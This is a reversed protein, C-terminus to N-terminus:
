LALKMQDREAKIRKNAIDCYEPNIESGIWNRGLRQAAQLTTGSGVYSDYIMGDKSSLVIILESLLEVPKQVPHDRDKSLTPAYELIDSHVKGDNNVKAGKNSVWLILEHRHRFIKGLGIRTKDWILLKTFDWMNYVVPYFVPYSEDNCFVLVHGNDKIIRKYEKAVIMFYQGLISLDGFSRGWSVRSQYHSAPMFFPPDTLILDVFNDPMRKMTELCDENYIQNLKIM